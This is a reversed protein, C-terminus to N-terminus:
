LKKGLRNEFNQGRDTTENYGRLLCLYCLTCCIFRRLASNIKDFSKEEQLYFALPSIYEHINFFSIM